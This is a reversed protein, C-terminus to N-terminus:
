SVKVSFSGNLVHFDFWQLLVEKSKSNVEFMEAIQNLRTMSKSIVKLGNYWSLYFRGLDVVKVEELVEEFVKPYRNGLEEVAEEVGKNFVPEDMITLYKIYGDYSVECNKNYMMLNKLERPYSNYGGDLFDDWLCMFDTYTLLVDKLSNEALMEEIMCSERILRAYNKNTYATLGSDWSPRLKVLFLEFVFDKVSVYGLRGDKHRLVTSLKLCCFPLIRDSETFVNEIHYMLLEDTNEPSDIYELWYVVNKHYEEAQVLLEEDTYFRSKPVQNITGVLKNLFVEKEQLYGKDKYLHEVDSGRYVDPLFKSERYLNVLEEFEQFLM